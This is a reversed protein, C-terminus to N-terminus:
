FFTESQSYSYVIFGLGRLPLDCTLNVLNDSYLFFSYSDFFLRPLNPPEMLQTLDAHTAVSM